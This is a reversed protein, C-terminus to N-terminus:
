NMEFRDLLEQMENLPDVPNEHLVVWGCEPYVAHSELDQAVGILGGVLRMECEANGWVVRLPATTLCAPYHGIGTGPPDDGTRKKALEADIVLNRDWNKMYPNKYLQGGEGKLYPFFVNAWGTLVAPGSGSRYRFISQWFETDINNQKAEVFQALIPDLQEIWEELGYDVFAQARERIQTWDSVTGSLTITPIGCGAMLVYEFYAKFTDMAMLNSVARETPGTTSFDARVLSALGGTRDDLLENFTEFVEPWPNARGPLFDPRSVTLVEKGSHSVFRHRLEEANENVHIAFSRALTIWIMDPSLRLPHHDYFSFCLASLLAHNKNCAVMRARPEWSAEIRRRFAKRLERSYDVAERIPGQRVRTTVDFTTDPM